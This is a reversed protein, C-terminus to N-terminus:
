RLLSKLEQKLLRFDVKGTLYQQFDTINDTSKVEIRRLQYPSINRNNRKWLTTVAAKFGLEELLEPTAFGIDKLQGYPYAFYDISKQLHKELEEKSEKLYSITKEKTLDGCSIHTLGHSGFTILPDKSLYEIEEWSLVNIKMYQPHGEDWENDLGVHFVPVFVTIPIDMERIIPLVQHNICSYADDFTVTALRTDTNRNQIYTELDTLQWHQKVFQLQEEFNYTAVTNFGPKDDVNHYMLIM